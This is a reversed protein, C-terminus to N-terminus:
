SVTEPFVWGFCLGPNPLGPLAWHVIRLNKSDCLLSIDPPLTPVPSQLSVTELLHAKLDELHVSHHPLSTLGSSMYSSGWMGLPGVMVVGAM